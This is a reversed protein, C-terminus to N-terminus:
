QILSCNSNRYQLKAQTNDKSSFFRQELPIDNYAKEADDAYMQGVVFDTSVGLFYQMMEDGILDRRSKMGEVLDRAAKLGIQFLRKQEKQDDFLQAYISCKFAGSMKDGLSGIDADGAAFSSSWFAINSTIVTAIIALRAAM